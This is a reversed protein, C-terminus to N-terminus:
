GSPTTLDLQMVSLQDRVPHFGVGEYLALAAANDASTNVLCDALHRRAMWGLADLTLRRGFGRRQSGPDVSLRQLYGHESSAGAIAFAHLRRSRRGDAPTYCYRARHHPTAHRIEDLEGGDHGWASGFAARDVAGAAEYHRRRMTAIGTSRSDDRARLPRSLDVRLLVLTDAVGFGAQAFRQAARPFLASTRVSEVFPDARIADIWREVDAVAPVLSDDALRLQVIGPQYAAHRLSM